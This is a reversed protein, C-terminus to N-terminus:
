RYELGEPTRSYRVDKGFKPFNILDNLFETDNSLVLKRDSLFVLPIHERDSEKSNLKNWCKKPMNTRKFAALEEKSKGHLRGDKQLQFYVMIISFKKDCGSNSRFYEKRLEDSIMLYGNNEPNEMDNNLLWVILEICHQNTTSAFLCAINNDIFIDKKM